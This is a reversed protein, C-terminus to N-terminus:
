VEKMKEAPLQLMESKFSSPADKITCRWVACFCCFLCGLSTAYLLPVHEMKQNQLVPRLHCLAASVFSLWLTKDTWSVVNVHVCIFPYLPDKGSWGALVWDCEWISSARTRMYTYSFKNGDNWFISSQATNKWPIVVENKEAYVHAGTAVPNLNM